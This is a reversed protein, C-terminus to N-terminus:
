LNFVKTISETITSTIWDAVVIFLMTQVSTKVVSLGVNKAGGMTTYGYFTSLSAIIFSFCIAKFSGSAISIGTVVTPINRIYEEFSVGVFAASMIAGGAFGMIVGYVLLFFAAVIIGIFRPVIIEQIPNAGLCRIADIQETIKMTGLEASTFAGVKGSLMFAILLPGIERITSSTSLAGLYGLAGFM